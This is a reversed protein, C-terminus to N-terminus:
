AGLHATVLCSNVRASECLAQKSTLCLPLWRWRIIAIVRPVARWLLTHVYISFSTIRYLTYMFQSHPSGTLHTCLSLILHDQLTHVYVSLILHDQLTHVYVSFSTIRYPTCMFQSHPSGTLHACLSLILKHEAHKLTLRPPSM